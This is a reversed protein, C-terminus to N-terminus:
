APILSRFHCFLIQIFWWDSPGSASSGVMARLGESVLSLIPELHWSSVVAQMHLDFPKLLRFLLCMKPVLLIAPGSLRRELLKKTILWQYTAVLPLNLGSSEATSGGTGALSWCCQLSYGARWVEDSFVWNIGPGRQARRAVSVETVRRHKVAPWSVEYDKVASKKGAEM